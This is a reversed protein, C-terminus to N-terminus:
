RRALGCALCSSRREKAEGNFAGCACMWGPLTATCRLCLCGLTCLRMPCREHHPHTACTCWTANSEPYGLSPSLTAVRAAYVIPDRAHLTAALWATVKPTKIPCHCDSAAWECQTCWPEPQEYLAAEGPLLTSM